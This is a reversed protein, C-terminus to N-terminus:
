RSGLPNKTLLEDIESLKFRWIKKAASPDLPHAPIRGKRALNLVVRREVSLHAAVADASVYHELQAVERSIVPHIQQRSDVTALTGIGFLNKGETALEKRLVSGKM